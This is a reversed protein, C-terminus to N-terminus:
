VRIHGNNAIRVPQMPSADRMHLRGLPGVSARAVATRSSAFSLLWVLCRWRRSSLKRKKPPPWPISGVQRTGSSRRRWQSVRKERFCVVRHSVSLSIRISTSSRPDGTKSSCGNGVTRWGKFGGRLTLKTDTECRQGDARAKQQRNFAMFFLLM